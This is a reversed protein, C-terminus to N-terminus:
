KGWSAMLLAFDFIDIKSDSNIDSINSGTKGWNSMLLAFDLVDIKGDKNADVKQAASSLASTTTVPTTAGGGGGGGGGGGSSVPAPNAIPSVIVRGEISCNLGSCLTGTVESAYVPATLALGFAIIIISLQTKM